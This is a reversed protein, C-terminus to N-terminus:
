VRMQDAIGAYLKDLMASCDRRSTEPGVSIRISGSRVIAPARIAKMVHSPTTKGTSCASGTAIIVKHMLMFERLRLNCFQKPGSMIFSVLLTNPMGMPARKTMPGIITQKDVITDADLTANISIKTFAMGAPLKQFPNAADDLAALAPFKISPMKSSLDDLIYNCLQQTHQATQKYTQMVHELAANMGAVGAVNITGGRLGNQQTGFVRPNIQVVASDFALIGVGTPGGFKHASVSFAHCNRAINPIKGFMQVADCHYIANFDRCQDFIVDMHNVSGTENNAAMVHVLKPVAAHEILLSRLHELQISGDSECSIIKHNNPVIAVVADLSTQHESAGILQMADPYSAVMTNISESGGSTFLVTWNEAGAWQLVNARTKALLDTAKKAYLASANGYYAAIDMARRAAPLLPSTGNYDFYYYERYIGEPGSYYWYILICVLIAIVAIQLGVM